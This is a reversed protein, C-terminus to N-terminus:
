IESRSQWYLYNQEYYKQIFLLDSNYDYKMQGDFVTGRNYDEDRRWMLRLKEKDNITLHFPEINKAASVKKIELWIMLSKLAQIDPIDGLYHTIPSTAFKGSFKSDIQWDVTDVEGYLFWEEVTDEGSPKEIYFGEEGKLEKWGLSKIQENTM